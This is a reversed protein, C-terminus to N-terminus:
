HLMRFYYDGNTEDDHLFQCTSKNSCFEQFKCKKIKHEEINHAFKCSPGNECPVGRRIYVCLVTKYNNKDKETKILIEKHLSPVDVSHSFRCNEGHKCTLGKDVYFCTKIKQEVPKYYLKNNELLYQSIM